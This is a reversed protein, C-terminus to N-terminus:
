SGSKAESENPTTIEPEKPAQTGTTIEEFSTPKTIKDSKSCGAVLSIILLLIVSKKENTKKRRKM